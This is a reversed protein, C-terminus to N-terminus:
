SVQIRCWPRTFIIGFLFANWYSAYRGSMSQIKDYGVCAGWLWACGGAVMCVGLCGHMGGLLQGHGSAVMCVAGWCYCMGGAVMCGRPLWACGGAVMCVGQCGHVGGPLWAHGGTFLIVSLYLFIVKGWVENEPPLLLNADEELSFRPNM